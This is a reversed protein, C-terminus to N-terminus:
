FESFPQDPLFDRPSMNFYEALLNIHKLNYKAPNFRNEVNGVFSASTNLIAAINQQTLRRDRRLKIVIDITYQEIPQLKSLSM